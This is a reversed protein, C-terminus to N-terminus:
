HYHWWNHAKENKTYENPPEPTQNYKETSDKTVWAM